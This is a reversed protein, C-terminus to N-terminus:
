GPDGGTTATETKGDAFAQWSGALERICDRARDLDAGSSPVAAFRARLYLGLLTQVPEAAVGTRGLVDATFETPTQAPQRPVGSAEAAEELAMWAAIIADTPNGVALLREEATAAGQQLTPLDPTIEVVDIETDPQDAQMRRLALLRAVIVTIVVAVAAILLGLGVWRMWSLDVGGSTPANPTAATQQGSQDPVPMTRMPMSREPLKWSIPDVHWAPRIATIVLGLVLVLGVLVAAAIPTRGGRRRARRHSPDAM